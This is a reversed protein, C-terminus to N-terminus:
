AKSITLHLTDHGKLAYTLLNTLLCTFIYPATLACHALGLKALFKSRRLRFDQVLNQLNGAL